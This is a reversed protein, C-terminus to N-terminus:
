CLVSQAATTASISGRILCISRIHFLASVYASTIARYREQGAAFDFVHIFTIGCFIFTCNDFETAVVSSWQSSHSRRSVCLLLPEGTDWIQAKINKGDVNLSRTAFEVGITSKSEM